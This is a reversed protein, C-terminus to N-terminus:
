LAIMDLFESEGVIAVGLRDAKAVKSGPDSGAVVFDTKRSVSGAVKAGLDRLRQSAEDRTMSSLAGTLVFIKGSLPLERNEPATSHEPWTVGAQRLKQIVAANHPQNFFTHISAAVVPGIDPVKVLDDVPAAIIAQLSGFHAALQQATTEGVQGIGLAHLFRELKTTKSRELSQVLNQASKGALRELGVLQEVTLSYLDAADQVLNKDVLQEVIKDGLGDIDMARRSAFHKISEKRQASCYLGGSCRAVIGEGEYVIESGCVPCADPFKFRRTHPPRRGTNVSVVEPIVDGARRVMVTDGVRIDLREIERRNHLTANSVTVGGVFVPRLRAVPTVAGTRGVQVEIGQVVTSEEQAPFKHALAWRPARSINGLKSQLSMDSVKYVVGDIDYSLRCRIKAIREYYEICGEAGVVLEALPSVRLGWTKFAKLLARHTDPIKGAVRGVGYFFIELPRQATLRSDLQRLSGAAANRPNVFLKGAKSRQDENLKRFGAHTLFVEGRVELIDPIKKGRLRLPVSKITKINMTVDEGTEGDGRTAGVVLVGREYLLSVALGDLKPEAVYEVEEIEARERIRKDFALVDSEDFANSLSLMAVKHNVPSFQKLPPAGARLTPSDASILEPYRAELHQLEGFM